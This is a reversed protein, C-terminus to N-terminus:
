LNPDAADVLRDSAYLERVWDILVEIGHRQPWGLVKKPKGFIMKDLSGNPMYDYVIFLHTGRHVSHVLHHLLHLLLKMM